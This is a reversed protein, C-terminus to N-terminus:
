KEYSRELFSTVKKFTSKALYFIFILVLSLGMYKSKIFLVLFGLKPLIFIVKGIIQSKNILTLDSSKNADGKTEFFIESNSNEGSNSNKSYISKVRHTVLTNEIKYSIIDAIKYHEQSKALLVDGFQFEPQMSNSTVVMLRVKYVYIGILFVIYSILLLFLANQFKM